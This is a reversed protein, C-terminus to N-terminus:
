EENRSKFLEKFTNYDRVYIIGAGTEIIEGSLVDFDSRRFGTIRLRGDETIKYELALDGVYDTLGQQQAGEINVNGAVKVELKDNFLTKSVGLELETTAQGTGTSYDQYSQLDFNLNVGNIDNTLRNLQDSLIRSVSRRAKDEIDYGGESKLPDETIFRQLMLLAFVQKNLDSERTNLDKIRAYVSGGFVNQDDEPMDLEFSIDPKMLEGAINLYVLFPIRQKYKELEAGSASSVQSIMLDIPPAEVRNYARIDLRAEYPDGTWTITSGKELQFKRKVLKYFSFDYSGEQVEYRGSIQIDGKRDIDLNLTASGKVSLQDETVPDIIVNFLASKDIELTATLDLGQFELSDSLLEKPKDVEKNNDASVFRVTNETTMSNYETEPVVYTLNSEETLKLNMDLSPRASTGKVKVNGDTKLKGYFLGNDENTTNLILFDNTNVQLNFNYFSLDVLEISGDIIATNNLQDNIKFKNFSILSNNLRIKENKILLSNNLASPKLSVDEFVMAGDIDPNTLGSTLNINGRLTGAIQDISESVLPAITNLQFKEIKVKAQLDELQALDYTSELSIINESSILEVKAQYNNDGIKQTNLKFNGWEEGLIKLERIVLDAAVGFGNNFELDLKGDMVGTALAQEKKVADSITKVKFSDFIVHLASDQPKTKFSLEQNDRFLGLTTSPANYYNGLQLPRNQTVNWRAYNLILSDRNLSLQYTSDISEVVGKILYKKQDITDKITLETIVKDEALIAALSINKIDTSNTAIEEISAITVLEGRSSHTELKFSDIAIDNYTIHHISLDVDLKDNASNFQSHFTGPRFKEIDPVLIETILDTNKLNFDFSFNMEPVEENPVDVLNYYQNIHQKISNSVTYIDINGKFQGDMIDSNLTIETKGDQDISAVLLSDMKYTDIENNAEFNRIAVNGNFRKFDQTEFNTILKGRLKLPTRSFNLTQLHAKTLNLTVKNKHLKPSLDLDGELTFAAHEDILEVSGDLLSNVVTANVKLTDYIYNQFEIHGIYGSIRANLNNLNSGSGNIKLKVALSDLNNGQNLLSGVDFGSSKIEGSYSPMSEELVFNFNNLGINGYSSTLNLRGNYASLSGTGDAKLSFQEPLNIKESLSDPLFPLIETKRSSVLLTDMKYNLSDPNPLNMISGRTNILSNPTSAQLKTVSFNALAGSIEAELNLHNPLKSAPLQPIFYKADNSHIVSPSVQLLIKTNGDMINKLSAFSAEFDFVIESEGTYMELNHVQLSTPNMTVEGDLEISQKNSLLSLDIIEGSVLDTSYNAEKLKLNLQSINLHNPDFYSTSTTLTDLDIDIRNNKFEILDSRIKWSNDSITTDNDLTQNDGKIVQYNVRSNSLLVKNFDILGDNLSMENTELELVGISGEIKQSLTEVQFGSQIIEIEGVILNFPNTSISDSDQDKSSSGSMSYQLDAGKIFILGIDLKSQDPIFENIEIDLEHWKAKLSMETFDDKLSFDLSDVSIDEIAFEWSKSKTQAKTTDTAFADIIYQFNFEDNNEARRIKGVVTNLDTTNLEIKRNTLQWLDADIEISKFYLLTDGELDEIYFSQIEISKPFNIYVHDISIDTSLVKEINAEVKSVIKNQVSPIRVLLIIIFLLSLVVAVTWGIIKLILISVRKVRPNKM